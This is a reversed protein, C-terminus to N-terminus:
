TIHQTNNHQLYAHTYTHPKEIIVYIQKKTHAKQARTITHNRRSNKTHKNTHTHTHIHIAADILVNARNHTHTHTHTCTDIKM